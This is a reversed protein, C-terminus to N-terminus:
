LKMLALRLHGRFFDRFEDTCVYLSLLSRLRWEVSEADRVLLDDPFTGHSRNSSIENDGIARVANTILSDDGFESLACDLAAEPEGDQLYSKILAIAERAEVAEDDTALEDYRSIAGDYDEEKELIRGESITLVRQLVYSSSEMDIEQLQEEASTASRHAGDPDGRELHAYSEAVQGWFEHRQKSDAIVEAIADDGIGQGAEVLAVVACDHLEVKGRWSETANAAHRFSKSLYKIYRDENWKEIAAAARLYEQAAKVFNSEETERPDQESRWERGSEYLGRALHLYSQIYAEDESQREVPFEQILALQRESLHLESAAPQERDRHRYREVIDRGTFYLYDSLLELSPDRHLAAGYLDVLEPDGFSRHNAEDLLEDASRDDGPLPDRAVDLYRRLEELIQQEGHSTDLGAVLRARAVLEVVDQESNPVRNLLTSLVPYIFQRRDKEEYLEELLTTVVGNLSTGDVGLEQYSSVRQAAERLTYIRFAEGADSGGTIMNKISRDTNRELAWYIYGSPGRDIFIRHYLLYEEFDDAVRPAKSRTKEYFETGDEYAEVLKGYREPNNLLAEAREAHTLETTM